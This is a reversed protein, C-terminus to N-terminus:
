EGERCVYTMALRVRESAVNLRQIDYVHNYACNLTWWFGPWRGLGVGDTVRANWGLLM